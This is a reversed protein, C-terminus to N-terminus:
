DSAQLQSPLSQPLSFSHVSDEAPCPEAAFFSNSKSHYYQTLIINLHVMWMSPGKHKISPQQLGHHLHECAVILHKMLASNLRSPLDEFM